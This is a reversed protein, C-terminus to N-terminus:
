REDIIEGESFLRMMGRIFYPTFFFDDHTGRPDTEFTLQDPPFGKDLLLAHAEKTHMVMGRQINTKYIGELEGVYMYIRHNTVSITEKDMFSLVNEYWFSASILAIKGFVQPYQYYAYISVLGGLSCGAIGTHESGPMTRYNADIYPKIEHVLVKLYDQAGGGFDQLGPVLSPAEWPTYNMSRNHPKIGVFIIEPLQKTMVLHDIYNFGGLVVEGEDQVYVVPYHKKGKGYSLPLYIILEYGASLETRHRGNMISVM